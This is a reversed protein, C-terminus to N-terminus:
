NKIIIIIRLYNRRYFDITIKIIEVSKLINYKIITNDNNIINDMFYEYICSILEVLSIGDTNIINLIYEYSKALENEQIFKLIKRIM